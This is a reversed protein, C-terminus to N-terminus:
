TLARGKRESTLVGDFKRSAPAVWRECALSHKPPNAARLDTGLHPPRHTLNAPAAWLAERDRPILPDFRIGEVSRSRIVADENTLLVFLGRAEGGHCSHLQLLLVEDQEVVSQLASQGIEDSLQEVREFDEFVREREREPLAEIAAKLSVLLAVPKATWDVQEPFSINRTAFYRQLDSSQMRRLFRPLSFSM